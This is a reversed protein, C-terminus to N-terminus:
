TGGRTGVLLCGVQSELLPDLGLWRANDLEPGAGVSCPALGLATAVLYLTQYLCGVDRAILGLGIGEYKWMVRAFVATVVLVAQPPRSPGGTAEGVWRNVRELEEEDSGGAGAAVLDHARADYWHAGRALGAVRNAVVYLELEGRAGGAPYPHFVQQGLHEDDVVASVRAAHHLLSSLDVLTLPNDGYSRISRRAALVEDLRVDLSRPPPLATVAGPPRPRFAPPPPGSAGLHDREGGINQSRQVALDFANWLAADPPGENRDVVGLDHLRDLVDGPLGEEGTGDLDSPCRWDDLRGLLALLNADVRFRRLSACQTLVLDPGDWGVLLHPSRRYHAGDGSM